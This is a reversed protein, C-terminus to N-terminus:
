KPQRHNIWQALHGTFIWMAIVAVVLAPVLLWAWEIWIEKYAGAGTYIPVFLLPMFPLLWKAATEIWRVRIIKASIAALLLLMGLVNAPIILGFGKKLLIGFSLFLCFITLGLLTELLGTLIKKPSAPLLNV